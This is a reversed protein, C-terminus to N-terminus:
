KLHTQLSNGFVMEGSPQCRDIDTVLILVSSQVKFASLSVFQRDMENVLAPNISYLIRILHIFLNKWVGLEVEHMLDVVLM